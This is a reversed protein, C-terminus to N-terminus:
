EVRLDWKRFSANSFYGGERGGEDSLCEFIKLDMFYPLSLVMKLSDGYEMLSWICFQESPDNARIHFFPVSATTQILSGSEELEM